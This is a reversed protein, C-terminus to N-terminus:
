KAGANLRKLTDLLKQEAPDKIPQVGDRAEGDDLEEGEELESDAHEEGAQEDDPEDDAGAAGEGTPKSAAATKRRQKKSLTLGKIKTKLTAKAKATAKPKQTQTPKPAPFGEADGYEKLLKDLRPEYSESGETSMGQLTMSLLHDQLRTKHAESICFCVSPVNALIACHILYGQGPSFDVVASANSMTFEDEYFQKHANHFFQPLRM